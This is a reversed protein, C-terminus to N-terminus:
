SIPVGDLDEVQTAPVGTQLGDNAAEWGCQRSAPQFASYSPNSSAICADWAATSDM